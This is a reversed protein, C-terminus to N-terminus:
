KLLNEIAKLASLRPKARLRPKVRLTLAVGKENAALLEVGVM